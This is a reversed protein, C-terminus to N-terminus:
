QVSLSAPVKLQPGGDSAQPVETNPRLPTDVGLRKRREAEKERAEALVRANSEAIREPSPGAIIFSLPASVFVVVVLALWAVDKPRLGSIRDKAVSHQLCLHLQGQTFRLTTGEPLELSVRGDKRSLQSEPVAQFGRGPVEQEVTAAPPVFVRYGQGTREALLFPEEPLTFGYLPLPAKGDLAAHVQEQTPGFSWAESLSTGWYLECFLGASATPKM